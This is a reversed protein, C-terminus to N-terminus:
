IYNLEIFWITSRTYLNDMAYFSLFLKEQVKFPPVISGANSDHNDIELENM